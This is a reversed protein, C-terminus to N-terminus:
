KGHSTAFAFADHLVDSVDHGAVGLVKVLTDALVTEEAAKRSFAVADDWVSEVDHGAIVLLSKVHGLVTNSVTVTATVPATPLLSVPQGDNARDTVPLINVATAQFPASGDQAINNEVTGPTNGTNLLAALNGEAQTEGTTTMDLPDMTKRRNFLSKLRTILNM